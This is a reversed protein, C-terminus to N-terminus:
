TPDFLAEFQADEWGRDSMWKVVEYLARRVIYMLPRLDTLLMARSLQDGAVVRRAAFSRNVDAPYGLNVLASDGAHAAMDRIDRLRAYADTLQAESIGRSVDAHLDFRRVLTLWRDLAERTSFTGPPECLTSIATYLHMHRETVTLDSPFRAALYRARCSALVALAGSSGSAMADFPRRLVREDDALKWTAHEIIAGSQSSRPGFAQPEFQKDIQGLDFHPQPGWIGDSPWIYRRGDPQVGLTWFPLAYAIRTRALDRALSRTGREVTILAATVRTDLPGPRWTTKLWQARVSVSDGLARRLDLTSPADPDEEWPKWDPDSNTPMLVVRPALEVVRNPVDLNAIPSAVIWQAEDSNQATLLDILEALTARQPQGNLAEVIAHGIRAPGAFQNYVDPRDRRVAAAVWSLAAWHQDTFHDYPSTIARATEGPEFPANLAARNAEVATWVLHIAENTKM